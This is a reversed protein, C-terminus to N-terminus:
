LIQGMTTKKSRKFYRRREKSFKHQEERRIRDFAWMVQRVYHFRDIVVIANKFYTKAMDAYPKWMDIVIVKVKEREERSFSFFYKSLHHIERGPLIDLVRHNKPDTIICQYKGTEANGKFEDISIVESLRPKGHSIFDFVRSVTCVSVNCRKAVSSRSCTSKLERLIYSILSSSM